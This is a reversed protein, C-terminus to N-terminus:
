DNLYISQIEQNLLYSSIEENTIVIANEIEMIDNEDLNQGIEYSSINSQYVLYNEIAIADIESNNNKFLFTAALAIIFIAAVPWYWIKKSKNLTIVKSQQPLRHMVKDPFTDFYNEPLSFGPNIKKNKHLEFQTM